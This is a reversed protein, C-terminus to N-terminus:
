AAVARPAAFQRKAYESGSRDAWDTGSAMLTEVYAVADGRGNERDAVNLARAIATIQSRAYRCVEAERSGPVAHRTMTWAKVLAALPAGEGKMRNNFATRCTATCFTRGLGRGGAPVTANCNPCPKLM